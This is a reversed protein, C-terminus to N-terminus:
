EKRKRSLLELTRADTVQIVEATFPLISASSAGAWLPKNSRRGVWIAIVRREDFYVTRLDTNGNTGTKISGRIGPYKVLGHGTGQPDSIVQRLVTAVQDATSSSVVRTPGTVPSDREDGEFKARKVIRAPRYTGHQSFISYAAALQLTTTGITGIFQSPKGTELPELHVSQLVANLRDRSDNGVRIWPLNRSRILADGLLMPGQFRGDHNRPNWGAGDKIEGAVLPADNVRSSMSYHGSDLAAAATFPKITSGLGRRAQTACSSPARDNRSGVSALVEGNTADIVCVAADLDDHAGPLYKDLESCWRRAVATLKQQLDADITTEIEVGAKNLDLQPFQCKAANLIDAQLVNITRAPAATRNAWRFKYKPDINCNEPLHGFRKAKAIVDGAHKIANKRDLGRKRPAPLTAVVWAAEAADLQDPRKNFFRRAAARLGISGGFNARNFFAELREERSLTKAIKVAVIAEVLKRLPSRAFSGGNVPLTFASRALEQEITSGGRSKGFVQGVCASFLAMGDIPLIRNQFRHDEAAILMSVTFPTVEDLRLWDDVPAAIVRGFRDTIQYSRHSADHKLASVDIRSAQYCAILAPFGVLVAAGVLFLLIWRVPLSARRKAPAEIWTPRLPYTLASM